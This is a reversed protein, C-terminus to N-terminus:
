SFPEDLLDSLLVAFSLKLAERRGYCTLSFTRKWPGGVHLRHYNPNFRLQILGM